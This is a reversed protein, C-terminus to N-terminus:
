REAETYPLAGDVKIQNAKVIMKVNVLVMKTM